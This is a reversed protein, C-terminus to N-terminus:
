RGNKQEGKLINALTNAHKVNMDYVENLKSCLKEDNTSNMYFQLKKILILNWNFADSIYSLDKPTITSLKKNM